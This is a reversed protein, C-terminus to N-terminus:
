DTPAGGSAEARAPAPLQAVRVACEYRATSGPELAALAGAVASFHLTVAAAVAGLAAFSAIAITSIKM